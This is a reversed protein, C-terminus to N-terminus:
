NTNEGKLLSLDIPFLLAAVPYRYVSSYAQVILESGIQEVSKLFVEGAMSADSLARHHQEKIGLVDAVTELKYNQLGPFAEKVWSYANVWQIHPLELGLSAATSELFKQDFGNTNYVVVPHGDVRSLVEPIVSEAQPATHVMESTIGTLNTIFPDLEGGYYVLSSYVRESKDGCFHVWGVEIISDTSPNRGTTELDLADFEYKKPFINIQAGENPKLKVVDPQLSAQLGIDSTVRLHFTQPTSSANYLSFSWVRNGNKSTLEGTQVFLAGVARNSSAPPIAWFDVHNDNTDQFPDNLSSGPKRSLAWGARPVSVPAGECLQADGWGVADIVNGRGPQANLIAVTGGKARITKKAYPNWDSHLFGQTNGFTILFFRHPYLVATDPFPKARYPNEWSDRNTSYYCLYLGKLAIPQDSPNYLEIFEPEDVSVETIQINVEGHIIIGFSFILLGIILVASLCRQRLFEQIM